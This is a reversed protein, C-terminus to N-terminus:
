LVKATVYGDLRQQTQFRDTVKKLEALADELDKKTVWRITTTVEVVQEGPKLMKKVAELDQQSLGKM